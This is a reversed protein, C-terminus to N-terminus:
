SSLQFLQRFDSERLIRLSQGKRILEEAKRQKRSKNHGALQRVDQDGVILLTTDQTVGTEVKCGMEAALDAAERRVIQLSGTFVVVEGYLPGDPNGERTIRQETKNPDLPQRVRRLWGDVDLRSEAIAALMIQGAAKADELADHHKFKYGIRECVNALGCGSHALEIWARRAVRASDLWTCNPPQVQSKSAAQYVPTRDFHTHTVVVAGNLYGNIHDSADRFTPAGVVVSADIGHISVNLEDFYDEPDIYTKWENSVLGGAYQVIGIQCVSSMDANATEVDIATFQLAGGLLGSWRESPQRAKQRVSSLSEHVKTEIASWQRLGSRRCESGDLDV